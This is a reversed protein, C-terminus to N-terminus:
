KSINGASMYTLYLADDMSIWVYTSGSSNIFLNKQESSYHRRYNKELYSEVGDQCSLDFSVVVYRLNCQPGSFAYLYSDESDKGKYSLSNDSVSLLEYDSMSERVDSPTASWSLLPERFAFSPSEELEVDSSTSCAFLPLLVSLCVGYLFSRTM